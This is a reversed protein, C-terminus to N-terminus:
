GATACVREECLEAAGDDGRVPIVEDLRTLSLVRRIRHNANVVVLSGGENRLVHFLGVIFAIGTTDIYPVDRCDVVVRRYGARQLQDRTKVFDANSGTVFRGALRLICTDNQVEFDIRM